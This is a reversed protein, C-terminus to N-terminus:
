VGSRGSRSRASAIARRLITSLRDVTYPKRLLEFGHSGEEALVHSYGSALIVPLTPNTARLRQALEIGSIGPMMVDSFVL